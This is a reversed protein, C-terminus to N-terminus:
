EALGALECLNAAAVPQPCSWVLFFLAEACRRSAPHGALFGAGKAAVLAAQTARLVLSNARARLEESTCIPRGSALELLDRKLQDLEAQLSAAPDALNARSESQARIDGIAASALGIALASTQLGGTKAGAGQKMVEHVPGALLWRRDLRVQDLHVPGTRSASLAALRPSREIRVGPLDTPLVALIQRGDNLTAGLVIHQAFEAGTVWPSYGDLMFGDATETAQLVPQALHQRSTTLHSIGVTALTDGAVLPPLLEYKLSENDSAAIRNVAGMRQTIVFTTTLCAAALKMYGRVLDAESWALGDWEAALFWRFVGADACLRLQEAPWADPEDLAPALEALRSCLEDLAPDDPTLVTTM